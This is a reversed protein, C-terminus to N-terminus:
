PHLNMRHLAVILPLLMAFVCAMRWQMATLLDDANDALAAKEEAIVVDLRHMRERKAPPLLGMQELSLGAIQEQTLAAIQLPKMGLLMKTPMAAIHAPTLSQVHNPHLWRLDEATLAGPPKALILRLEKPTLRM